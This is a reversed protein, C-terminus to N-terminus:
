HDQSQGDEGASETPMGIRLIEWYALSLAAIAFVSTLTSVTAAVVSVLAVSQSLGVIPMVVLADLIGLGLPFIAISVILPWQHAASM